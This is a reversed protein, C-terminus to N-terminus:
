LVGDKQMQQVVDTTFVKADETALHSWEPLTYKGMFEYDEFHYGPCGTAEILKDWYQDRPFGGNEAMRFVSQSPCRVFIVKGGMEEIVEPPPMDPPPQIVFSWFGTIENAYSTDATVIDLMTINRDKDIYQFVPFPPPAPIRAPMPIREILTKLDLENYFTEETANLFAFMNQPGQSIFHSFRDAYTRDNYHRIWNSIRRYFNNEESPPSFYLPPTVGILITGNFPSNEVIDKFVPMPTTGAAALMIPRVGTEEEWQDLQFDFFVRSSGLMVIDSSTAKELRARHKAWLHKDDEPAVPYGESRWHMEWGALFLIAIAGGLIITKLNIPYYTM